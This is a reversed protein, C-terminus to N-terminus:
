FTIFSCALLMSIMIASEAFCHMEVTLTRNLMLGFIFIFTHLGVLSALFIFILCKFILSFSFYVTSNTTPAKFASHYLVYKLINEYSNLLEKKTNGVTCDFIFLFLLFFTPGFIFLNTLKATIQVNYVSFAM